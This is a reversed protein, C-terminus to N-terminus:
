VNAFRERMYQLRSGDRVILPVITSDIDDQVIFSDRGGHCTALKLGLLSYTLQLANSMQLLSVDIHGFCLLIIVEDALSPLQIITVAADFCPLVM